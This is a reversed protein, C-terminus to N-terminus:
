LQVEKDIFKGAAWAKERGACTDVSFFGSEPVSCM